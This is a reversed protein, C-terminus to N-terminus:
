QELCYEITDAVIDLSNKSDSIIEARKKDNKFKETENSMRSLATKM